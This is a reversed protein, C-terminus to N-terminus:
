MERAMAYFEQPDLSATGVLFGDIEGTKLYDNINKSDASGGYLYAAGEPLQVKKKMELVYEVDANEGTGIAEVPEFAVIKVSSYVTDTANRICLIPSINYQDCMSVKHEIEQETEQFHERRESHAVISYNTIDKLAKATVEGTYKGEKFASVDQAGVEIGSINEFHNKVYLIFPFPPCIIIKVTNDALKETLKIDGALQDKFTEIWKDIEFLTTQAKWNAILYKM